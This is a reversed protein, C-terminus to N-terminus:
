IEIKQCKEFDEDGEYFFQFDVIRGNWKPIYKGDMFKEHYNETRKLASIRPSYPIIVAIDLDSNKKATGRAESGIIYTKLIPYNVRSVLNNRLQSVVWKRDPYSSNLNEQLKFNLPELFEADPVVASLSGADEADNIYYYGHADRLKKLQNRMLYNAKEDDMPRRPTNYMKGVIKVEFIVPKCIESVLELDSYKPKMKVQSIYYDEDPAYINQGTVNYGKPDIEFLRDKGALLTKGYERTGDWEGSAPLGIRAELAEKAARYSGIHIGTYGTVLKGSPSGHWFVLLTNYEEFLKLHKM